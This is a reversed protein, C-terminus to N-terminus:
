IQYKSYYTKVINIDKKMLELFLKRREPVPLKNDPPEFPPYECHVSVPGKINYKKVLTFYEDFNVMGEGMAVVDANWRKGKKVWM